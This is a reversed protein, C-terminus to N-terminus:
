SIIMKLVLYRLFHVERGTDPIIEETSLANGRGPGVNLNRNREVRNLFRQNGMNATARDNRQLIWSEVCMQPSREGQGTATSFSAGRRRKWAQNFGHDFFRLISLSM